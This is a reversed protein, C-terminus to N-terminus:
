SRRSSMLVYHATKISMGMKSYVHLLQQSSLSAREEVHSAASHLCQWERSRIRCEEVNLMTLGRFAGDGASDVM